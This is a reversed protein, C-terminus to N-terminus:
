PGSRERRPNTSSCCSSPKGAATISSIRRLGCRATQTTRSASRTAICQARNGNRGNAQRDNLACRGGSENQRLLWSGTERDTTEFYQIRAGVVAGGSHQNAGKGRVWKVGASKLACGNRVQQEDSYAFRELWSPLAHLAKLVQLANPHDLLVLRRQSPVALDEVSKVLEAAELQRLVLQVNRPSIGSVESIKANSPFCDARGQFFDFLEHMLFRPTKKVKALVRRELDFREQGCLPSQDIAKTKPQTPRHVRLTTSPMTYLGKSGPEGTACHGPMKQQHREFRRRSRCIERLQGSRSHRASDQVKPIRTERHVRELWAVYEPSGKMHIVTEREPKEPIVPKTTKKKVRGVDLVGTGVSM